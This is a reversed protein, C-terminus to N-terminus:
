VNGKAHSNLIVDIEGALQDGTFPKEMIATVGAASAKQLITMNTESTVMLVAVSRTEACSRINETLTIGDTDPMYLDTLVIDPKESSLKEIAQEASDAFVTNYGRNELFMGTLRRITKMDDVILVKKGM